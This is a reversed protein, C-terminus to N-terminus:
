FVDKMPVVNDKPDDVLINIPSWNPKTHTVHEYIKRQEEIPRFEYVRTKEKVVSKTYPDFIELKLTNNEGGDTRKWSFHELLKTAPRTGVLSPHKKAIYDNLIFRPILVPKEPWDSNILQSRVEAPLMADNLWSFIMSLIPDEPKQILLRAETQPIVKINQTIVRNKFYYALGSLAEPNLMIDGIRQFHEYDGIFTDNSVFVAFRRDSTDIHVAYDINTTAMYRHYSREATQNAFKKNVAFYPDTVMTKLNENANKNSAGYLNLEDLSIFIKHSLMGNFTSDFVAGCPISRAIRHGLLAAIVEGIISKGTGPKGKIIPMVGPKRAINQFIDAFFNLMYEACVADLSGSIHDIFPKYLKEDCEKPQNEIGMFTNLYLINGKNIRVDKTTPDFMLGAAHPQTSDNIYKDIVKVRRPEDNVLTVETEPEAEQLRASSSYMKFPQEPKRDHSRSTVDYYATGGSGDEVKQWKDKLFELTNKKESEKITPEKANVVMDLLEQDTFTSKDAVDWKAPFSRQVEQFVIKSNPLLKALAMMGIIGPEDNDPWLVVNRERLISINTNKLGNKGGSWTTVVYDPFLKTGADAAKEGEVVLVTKTPNNIISPLNYLPRNDSQLGIKFVDKGDVTFSSYPKVIKAGGERPDARLIWFAPHGTATYYTWVKSVEQYGTNGSLFKPFVAPTDHAPINSKASEPKPEKSNLAEPWLGDAKIKALLEKQKDKGCVHCFVLLRDTVEIHLSAKQDDHIPCKVMWNTEDARIGSYAEAIKAAAQQLASMNISPQLQIVQAM